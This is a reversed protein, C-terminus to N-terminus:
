RDSVMVPSLFEGRPCSLVLGTRPGKSFEEICMTPGRSLQYHYFNSLLPLVVNMSPKARTLMLYFAYPPQVSPFLYGRRTIHQSGRPSPSRLEATSATRPRVDGSTATDRYWDAMHHGVPCMDQSVQISPTGYESPLLSETRPIKLTSLEM